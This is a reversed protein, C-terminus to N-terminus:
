FLRLRLYNRAGVIYELSWAGHSLNVIVLEKNAATFANLEGIFQDLTEGNAGLPISVM